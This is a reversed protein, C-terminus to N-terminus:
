SAGYTDEERTIYKIQRQHRKNYKRRYINDLIYIINKINVINYIYTIM